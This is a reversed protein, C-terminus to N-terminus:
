NARVVKLKNLVRGIQKEHREFHLEFFRLMQYITIRGVIPHKYVEKGFWEPAFEGLKERLVQRQTQWDLRFQQLDDVEPLNETRVGQAASFKIPLKIFTVLGLYKLDTFISARPLKPNFSLKKIVYRLALDEALKVHSLVQAVSWSKVDVKAFWTPQPLEALSEFCADLQKNLKEVQISCASAADDM